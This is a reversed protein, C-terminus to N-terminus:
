KRRGRELTKVVAVKIVFDVDLRGIGVSHHTAQALMWTQEETTAGTDNLLKIHQKAGAEYFRRHWIDVITAPVRKASAASTGM